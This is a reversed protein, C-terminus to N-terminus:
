LRKEMPIFEISLGGPLPYSQRADGSYGCATYLRHGPLTAVLAISRFGSARAADECAQLLRRGLGKRAHDPHVFFARIRAAETAPNLLEPERTSHADGGFLTKRKSWGGCAVIRGADEIVFYTGDVILQSDVGFASGIAANLQEVSYDAGMLGRTSVDILTTLAQFDDVRALRLTFDM